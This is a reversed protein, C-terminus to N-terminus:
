YPRYDHAASRSRRSQTGVDEDTDMKPTVDYKSMVNRVADGVLRRQEDESVGRAASAGTAKSTDALHSSVGRRVQEDIMQKVERQSMSGVNKPASTDPFRESEYSRAHFNPDAGGRPPPAASNTAFDSYGGAYHGAHAGTYYEDYNVGHPGANANTAATYRGDPGMLGMTSPAMNRANQAAQFQQQMQRQQHQALVDPKFDLVSVTQMNNGAPAHPGGLGSMQQQQLQMQQQQQQQQALQMNSYMTQMSHPAAHAQMQQMQQPEQLSQMGVNPPLYGAYPSQMMTGNPAMSYTPAGYPSSNYNMAEANTTEHTM